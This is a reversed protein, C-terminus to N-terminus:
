LTTPLERAMLADVFKVGEDRRASDIAIYTIACRCLFDGVGSDRAKAANVDQNSLAPKNIALGKDIVGRTIEVRQFRRDRLAEEIHALASGLLHKALLRPMNYINRGRDDILRDGADTHTVPTSCLQIAHPGRASAISSAPCPMVMLVTARPAILVGICWTSAWSKQFTKLKDASDAFDILDNIRHHIEVICCEDCTFDQVDVATRQPFITILRFLFHM